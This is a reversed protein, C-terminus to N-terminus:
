TPSEPSRLRAVPNTTFGAVPDRLLPDFAYEAAGLLTADDLQAATLSATHLLTHARVLETLSVVDSGLIEAPLGALIVLDPNLINVLSTLGTALRHAVGTVAERARPDTSAAAVVHRAEADLQRGVVSRPIDRADPHVLAFADAEVNLCGRSGCHCPRGGPNVTLHTLESGTGRHGRYPQGNTVLAGGIGRHASTLYLLHRADRGAGHRHEALAACDADNRVVVPLRLGAADLADQLIRRIPIPADWGLYYAALARGEDDVASAVATGMACLPRRGQRAVTVALRSLIAAAADPTAAAPLEESAATVITGGLAAVGVTIERATISAALAHPAGGAPRVLHSPRGRAGSPQPQDDVEILGAKELEALVKSGGTRTMGLRRTLEARRRTGTHVLMLARGATTAAGPAEPAATDM